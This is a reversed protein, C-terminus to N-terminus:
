TKEWRCSKGKSGVHTNRHKNLMCFKGLKLVCINLVYIFRCYIFYQNIAINEKLFTSLCSITQTENKIKLWIDILFLMWEILANQVLLDSVYQESFGSKLCTERLIIFTNGIKRCCDYPLLRRFWKLSSHEILMPNNVYITNM